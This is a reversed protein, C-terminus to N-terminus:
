RRAGGSGRVAATRLNRGYRYAKQHFETFNLWLIMDTVTDAHYILLLYLLFILLVCIKPLLQLSISTSISLSLFFFSCVLFNKKLATAAGIRSTYM